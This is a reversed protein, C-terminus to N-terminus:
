NQEEYHPRWGYIDSHHYCDEMGLNRKIATILIGIQAIVDVVIGMVLCPIARRTSKSVAAKQPTSSTRRAM